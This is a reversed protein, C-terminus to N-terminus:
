VSNYAYLLRVHIPTCFAYVDVHQPGRYAWPAWASNTGLTEERRPRGGRGPGRLSSGKVPFSVSAYPDESKESEV